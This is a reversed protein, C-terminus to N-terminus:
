GGRSSLRPSRSRISAQLHSRLISDFRRQHADPPTARDRRDLDRRAAKIPLARHPATAEGLLAPATNTKRTHLNATIRKSLLSTPSSILATNIPANILRQHTASILGQSPRPTPPGHTHECSHLGCIQQPRRASQTM